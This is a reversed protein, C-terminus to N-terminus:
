YIKNNDRDIIEIIESGNILAMDGVEIFLVELLVPNYKLLEYTYISKYDNVSYKEKTDNILGLYWGSDKGEPEHNRHMYVEKSELADKLVVLRDQFTVPCGKENIERLIRNQKNQIYLSISLDDTKDEFPNKNYDCTKIRYSDEERVIFYFSWGLQITYNDKIINFEKDQDELLRIFSETFGELKEGCKFKIIKENIKTAFEKIM